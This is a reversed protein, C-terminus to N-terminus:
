THRRGDIGRRIRRTARGLHFEVEDNAALGGGQWDAYQNRVQNIKGRALEALLQYPRDRFM